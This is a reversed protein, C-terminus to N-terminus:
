QMLHLTTTSGQQVIIEGNATLTTTIDGANRLAINADVVSSIIVGPELNV